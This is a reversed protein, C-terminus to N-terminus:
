SIEQIFQSHGKNFIVLNNRARTMGVYFARREQEILSNPEWATLIVSDFELGKAGHITGLYDVRLDNTLQMQQVDKSHRFLIAQTGGAKNLAKSANAIHDYGFSPMITLVGREPRFPVSEGKMRPQNNRILRNSASVISYCSRYNTTIEMRTGPFSTFLEPAAGRFEYLTQDDDGVARNKSAKLAKIFRWDISSHDQAEDVYVIKFDPNSAELIKIADSKIMEFIGFGRMKMQTRVFKAIVEVPSSGQSSSEMQKRVHDVTITKSGSSKIAKLAIDNFAEDNIQTNAPYGIMAGKRQILQLCYGDITGIYGLSYPTKKRLRESIAMAGANTFSFCAIEKPDVFKSEIVIKESLCETKGSGPVASLIISDDTCQLFKLQQPNSKM